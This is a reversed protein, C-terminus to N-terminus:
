KCRMISEMKFATRWFHGLFFCLFVDQNLALFVHLFHPLIFDVWGGSKWLVLNHEIISGSCCQCAGLLVQSTRFFIKSSRLLIKSSRLLIQSFGLMVQSRLWICTHLLLLWLRPQKVSTQKCGTHGCHYGPSLHRWRERERQSVSLNLTFNLNM